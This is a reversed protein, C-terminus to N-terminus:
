VFIFFLFFGIVLDIKGVFNDNSFIHHLLFLAITKEIQCIFLYEIMRLPLVQFGEDITFGSKSPINHTLHALGHKYTISHSM